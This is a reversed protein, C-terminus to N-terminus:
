EELTWGKEEEAEEAEEVEEMAPGTAAVMAVLGREAQSKGWVVVGQAICYLSSGDDM